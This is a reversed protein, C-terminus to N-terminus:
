KHEAFYKDFAEKHAKDKLQLIDSNPDALIKKAKEIDEVSVNEDIPKGRTFNYKSYSVEGKNFDDPEDIYETWILAFRGDELECILGGTDIYGIAKKFELVNM